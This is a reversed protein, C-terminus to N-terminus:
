GTRWEVVRRGKGMVASEDGNEWHDSSSARSVKWVSEREGSTELAWQDLDEHVQPSSDM